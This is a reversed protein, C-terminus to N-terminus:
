AADNARKAGAPADEESLRPVCEFEPRKGRTDRYFARVKDMDTHVDGTPTFFGGVGCHRNAFDLYGLGLPVKAGVAIHYFGSRWYEVKGRTGEPPIGVILNQEAAFREVVQGVLG